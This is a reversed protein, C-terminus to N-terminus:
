EIDTEVKRFMKGSKITVPQDTYHEEPMNPEDIIIDKSNVLCTFEIPINPEANMDESYNGGFKGFMVIEQNKDGIPGVLVWMIFNQNSHEIFFDLVDATRQFISASLKAKSPQSYSYVVRGRDDLIEGTKPEVDFKQKIICPFKTWIPTTPLEGTGSCPTIYAISEAGFSTGNNNAQLNITPAGTYAM